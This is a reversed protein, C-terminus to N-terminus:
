FNLTAMTGYEATTQTITIFNQVTVNIWHVKDAVLFKQIFIWSQQWSSFQLIAV